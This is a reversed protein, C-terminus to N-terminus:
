LKLNNISSQDNFSMLLHSEKNKDWQNGEFGLSNIIYLKLIM